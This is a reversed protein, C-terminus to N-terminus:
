LVPSFLAAGGPYVHVYAAFMGVLVAVISVALSEWTKAALVDMKSWGLARLTGIEKQEEVGLAAPKDAALILLALAM